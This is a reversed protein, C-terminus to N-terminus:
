EAPVQVDADDAGDDAALAYGFLRHAPMCEKSVSAACRPAPTASVADMSSNGLRHSDRRRHTSLSALLGAADGRHPRVQEAGARTAIGYGIEAVSQDPPGFFGIGEILEGSSREVVRQHSSPGQQGCAASDPGRHLM